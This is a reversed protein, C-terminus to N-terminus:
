QKRWAMYQKIYWAMSGLILLSGALHWGWAFSGPIYSGIREALSQGQRVLDEGSGAQRGILLRTMDRTYSYYVLLAGSVLLIWAIRDYGQTYGRRSLALSLLCLMIMQLSSIVPALVPGVWTVPILFLIDPTLLSGPWGLLIYLAIYYVIDWVGFAFLFWMFQEWRSRGALLGVALLMVLTSLERVLETLYIRESMLRLPFHFGDPYYIERLYVVVTAELFGMALAFLFVYLLKKM